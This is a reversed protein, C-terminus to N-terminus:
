VVTRWLCTSLALNDATSEEFHLLLEKETSSIDPALDLLNRLPTIDGTSDAEDIIRAEPPVGARHFCTPCAVGDRHDRAHKDLAKNWKLPPNLAQGTYPVLQCTTWCKWIDRVAVGYGSASYPYICSLTRESSEKQDRDLFVLSDFASNQPSGSSPLAQIRRKPHVDKPELHIKFSCPFKRKTCNLCAPKTEDCKFKRRKCTACGSRSKHHTQRKRLPNGEPDVQLLVKEPVRGASVPLAFFSFNGDM